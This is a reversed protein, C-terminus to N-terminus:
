DDLVTTHLVVLNVRNIIVAGQKGANNQGPQPPPPPVPNTIPIQALVPSAFVAVACLLAALAFAGHFFRRKSNTVPRTIGLRQTFPSLRSDERLVCSSRSRGGVRTTLKTAQDIASCM